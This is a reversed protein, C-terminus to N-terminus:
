GHSTVKEANAIAAYANTVLDDKRFDWRPDDSGADIYGQTIEKLAALLADRQRVLAPYSPDRMLSQESTTM